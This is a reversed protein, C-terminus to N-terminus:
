WVWNKKYYDTMKIQKIAHNFREVIEQSVTKKSFLLSVPSSSLSVHCRRLGDRIRDKRSKYAVIVPDDIIGDLQYNKVFEIDQGTHEFYTIKENLAPTKQIRTINKGYVMNSQLGLRFGNKILDEVSQHDCAEAYKKTAYLVLTENRYSISFLGFKKREETITANLTLDIKGSEIAKLSKNYRLNFFELECGASEAIRKILEVQLGAPQNNRDFYHYPRWDAVSIKLKCDSTQKDLNESAAVSYFHSALLLIFVSQIIWRYQYALRCKSSGSLLSIMAYVKLM